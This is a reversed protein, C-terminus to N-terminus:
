PGTPPRAAPKQVPAPAPRTAAAPWEGSRLASAYNMAQYAGLAGGAANASVASNMSGSRGDSQSQVSPPPSPPPPNQPPPSEVAAPAREQYEARTVGSPREANMPPKSEPDAPETPPLKSPQAAQKPKEAFVMEHSVWINDSKSPSKKLNAMPVELHEGAFKTGEYITGSQFPGTGFVWLHKANSAIQRNGSQWVPHGSNRDYAFVAIKCVAQQATRKMLPIEPISAPTVPFVGGGTPLQTQPVGFLLDNRNTGVAGTRIEVVYIAEDPREKLICGSALMHQRLTSVIYKEDVTGAMYKTDLYVDRSALAGFDIESVARDVADSILMQETATRM